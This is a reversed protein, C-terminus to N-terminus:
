LVNCRASPLFKFFFISNEFYNVHM